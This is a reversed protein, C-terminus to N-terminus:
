ARESTQLIARSIRVSTGRIPSRQHLIIIAGLHFHQSILTKCVSAYYTSNISQDYQRPTRQERVHRHSEAALEQLEAESHQGTPLMSLEDPAPWFNTGRSATRVLSLLFNTSLYEFRRVRLHSLGSTPERCDGRPGPPALGRSSM